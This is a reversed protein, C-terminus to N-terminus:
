SGEGQNQRSHNRNKVKKSGSLPEHVTGDKDHADNRGAHGQGPQPVAQSKPKTMASGGEKEWAHTLDHLSQACEHLHRRYDAILEQVADAREDISRGGSEVDVLEVDIERSDLYRVSFDLEYMQRGAVHITVRLSKPDAQDAWVEASDGENLRKPLTRQWAEVLEHQPVTLQDKRTMLVGGSRAVSPISAITGRAEAYFDGAGDRGHSESVLWTRAAVIVGPGVSM